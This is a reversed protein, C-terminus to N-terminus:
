LTTRQALNDSIIVGRDGKDALLVLGNVEAVVADNNGPRAMHANAADASTFIATVRLAKGMSRIYLTETDSLSGDHAVGYPTRISRHASVSDEKPETRNAAIRREFSDKM